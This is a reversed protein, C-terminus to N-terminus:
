AGLAMDVAAAMAGLAVWERKQRRV